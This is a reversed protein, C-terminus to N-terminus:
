LYLVYPSVASRTVLSPEASTAAPADAPELTPMRDGLVQSHISSSSALADCDHTVMGSYSVSPASTISYMMSWASHSTTAMLVPELCSADKMPAIGLTVELTFTTTSKPLSSWPAALAFTSSAAAPVAPKASALTNVYASNRSRPADLGAAGVGGLFSSKATIMYVEPVVPLGLPTISSCSVYMYSTPPACAKRFVNTSSPSSSVKKLKRGSACMKSWTTSSMNMPRPACM